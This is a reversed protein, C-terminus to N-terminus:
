SSGGKTLEEQLTNVVKNIVTMSGTIEDIAEAQKDLAQDLTKTTSRLGEVEGKLDTIREEKSSVLEDVQSRPVLRGFYILWVNVLALLFWGGQLITDLPLGLADM